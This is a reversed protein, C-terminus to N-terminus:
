GCYIRMEAPSFSLSSVALLYRKINDQRQAAEEILKNQRMNRTKHFLHVAFGFPGAVGVKDSEEIESDDLVQDVYMARHIDAHEGQAHILKNTDLNVAHEEMMKQLDRTIAAAEESSSEPLSKDNIPISGSATDLATGEKSQLSLDDKSRLSSDPSGGASSSRRGRSKSSPSRQRMNGAAMRKVNDEAIKATAIAKNKEYLEKKKKKEALMRLEEMSQNMSMTITGIFLSLMVLASIVIFLVFYLSSLALQPKPTECLQLTLVASTYDDDDGSRYFSRYKSFVIFM